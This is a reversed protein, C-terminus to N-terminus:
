SDIHFNWTLNEDLVLGLCKKDTVRDIQRELALLLIIQSDRGSALFYLNPKCYTSLCDAEESTNIWVLKNKALSQSPGQLPKNSVLVTM